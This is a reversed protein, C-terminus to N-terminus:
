SPTIRVRTGWPDAAVVGRDDRTLAHGSDALSKAAEEVDRGSPLVIKWELLQADDTQPSAAGAAWINTGLHHHYGGASMFLAGPYNWATLDFGLDRHYFDSATELDGVQLHVHGMVTGRPMGSWAMGGAADALSDLDLPDTAMAIQDGDTRWEARARDAYVEIGLGDRDYLYLAESVLHDATGPTVGLERLHLYFRGLAARDPLLIAFHFLGLRGRKPVPKAGRRERLEVLTTGDDTVLSASGPTPTRARLGLIQEYYGISRRLEAVQLTVAGLNLAAPLRYRPAPQPM